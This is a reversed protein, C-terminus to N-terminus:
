GWAPQSQCDPSDLSKIGETGEARYCAQSRFRTPKACAEEYNPAPSTGCRVLQGAIHRGLRTEPIADIVKGTRAAFDKPQTAQTDFGLLRDSLEEKTM